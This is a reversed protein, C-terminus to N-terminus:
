PVTSDTECTHIKCSGSGSPIDFTIHYTTLATIDIALGAVTLTQEAGSGDSTPTTALAASPTGDTSSFLRARITTASGISDIVRARVTTIREGSPLQLQVTWSGGSSVQVALGSLGSNAPAAILVPRTVTGRHIRGGVTLDGGIIGHRAVTLDSPRVASVGAITNTGSGNTTLNIAVGAFANALSTALKFTNADIVIPWYNTAAVLPSPLAGGTNSTQLPGDGTQLGHGAITLADTSSSATYAASAFSLPLSTTALAGAVTLANDFSSVGSFAGDNLYQFWQGYLNQENNFVGSTPTQNLAWGSARLGSSPASRNAGSTNFVPITLPKTSM